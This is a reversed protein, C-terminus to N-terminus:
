SNIAAIVPLAVIASFVGVIAWRVIQAISEVLKSHIKKMKDEKRIHYIHELSNM